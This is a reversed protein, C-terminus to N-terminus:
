LKYWFSKSTLLDVEDLTYIDVYEAEPYDELIMRRVNVWEPSIGVEGEMVYIEEVNPVFHQFFMHIALYQEDTLTSETYGFLEIVAVKPTM